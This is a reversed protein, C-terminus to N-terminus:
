KVTKIDSKKSIIVSKGNTTYVKVYYSNKSNKKAKKDIYYNKKVDTIDAIKKYTGNGTKRYVYYGMAYPEKAWKIKIGEATRQASVKQPSEHIFESVDWSFSFARFDATGYYEEGDAEMYLARVYWNKANVSSKEYSFSYIHFDKDYNLVKKGDNEYLIFSKMHKEYEDDDSISKIPGIKKAVLHCTSLPVPYIKVNDPFGAKQSVYVGNEDIIHFTLSKNDATTWIVKGNECVPQCDSIAGTQQKKGGMVQGNGDVFVYNIKKRQQYSDKKENYIKEMWIMLFKNDSIKVLQPTEYIKGKEKGGITVIKGENKLDKDNVSLYLENEEDDMNKKYTGATLYASGSYELGGITAGTYNDGTEGSFTIINQRGSKKGMKSIVFARPYADGHDLFVVDGSDDVTIFQNFSHSVYAMADYINSVKYESDSVTMNNEDVAFTMNAQHNLGDSSKYMEHCTRIYLKGMYETMRLSGADFPIVTNAGYVSAAQLRNWNKDYKVVRIVETANSEEHNNQGFVLYYDNAGAFFGGPLPLEASIVKQSLFQFQKDYYEAYTTGDKKIHVRMYGNQVPVLYNYVIEAWNSNTYDQTGEDKNLYVKTDTQAAQPYVNTGFLSMGICLIMIAAKIKRGCKKMQKESWGKKYNKM